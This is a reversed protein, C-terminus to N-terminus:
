IEMVDKEKKALLNDIEKVYKDTIDQVHKMAKEREDEAIDHEKETKKIEDNCNRRINRVSIRGDEAMKKAMKVLDKRRDETLPPINLRILKGDNNPTMGLNAALIAKEISAMMNKDFPQIVLTRADPTSITAVQKLPMKSGYADVQVGDILAVSARGTRLGTFEHEVAELAKSMKEEASKYIENLQM